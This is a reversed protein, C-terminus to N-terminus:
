IFLFLIGICSDNRIHNLTGAFNIDSMFGIIKVLYEARFGVLHGYVPLIVSFYDSIWSSKIKSLHNFRYYIFNQIAVTAGNKGIPLRACAFSERHFSLPGNAVLISPFIVGLRANDGSGHVM